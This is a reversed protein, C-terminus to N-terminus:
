LWYVLTLEPQLVLSHSVFHQNRNGREITYFDYAFMLGLRLFFDDDPFIEHFEAAIAAGLGLDVTHLQSEAYVEQALYSLHFGGYIPIGVYKNQWVYWFPGTFFRAGLWQEFDGRTLNATPSKQMIPIDLLASAFIGSRHSVFLRGGLSIDAALRYSGPEAATWTNPFATGLELMFDEAYLCCASCILLAYVIIRKM